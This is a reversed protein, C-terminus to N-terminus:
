IDRFYKKEADLRAKKADEINNFYGLHKMKNNVGIRARWKGNQNNWSVGKVSSTNNRSIGRNQSNEKQTVIRLNSKRNDLKDRNIHDIVHTGDFKDMNMVLRHIRHIKQKIFYIAYGDGICVNSNINNIKNYDEIDILFEGNSCTVIYYNDKKIFMLETKIICGCSTTNGSTLSKFQVLRKNGCDCEVNYYNANNKLNDRKGYFGTITLKGFKM